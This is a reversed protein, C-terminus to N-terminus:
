KLLGTKRFVLETQTKLEAFTLKEVGVKAIVVINYDNPLNPVLERVIARLRRKILNRTHAKGIKKSISFGIKLVRHKTPLYVVTLNATHKATGNNYLYAFEKRKRLRNKEQLM